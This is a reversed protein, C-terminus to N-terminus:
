EGELTITVLTRVAAQIEIEAAYPKFGEKRAEVRHVGVLLGVEYTLDARQGLPYGDVLVEADHPEVQILLRGAAKVNDPYPSPVDRLYPPYYYPPYYPDYGGYPLGGGWRGHPPGYHALATGQCNRWAGLRPSGVGSEKLSEMEPLGSFTLFFAVYAFLWRAKMMFDIGRTM